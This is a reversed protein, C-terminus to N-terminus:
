GKLALIAQKLQLYLPTVEFVMQSERYDFGFAGRSVMINPPLQIRKFIGLSWSKLIWELDAIFAPGQDLQYHKLLAVIDAPLKKDLYASMVREVALSPFSMLMQILWDHYGWKMPDIQNPKLEATPPLEFLPIHQKIKPILNLPIVSKDHRRNIFEALAVIQMKTLDGLPAIAGITDGYLTAYGLAIELKNGNNLVVANLRQAENMLFSGRVRAQINELLLPSQGQPHSAAIFADVMPQIPTEQFHIALAKAISQANQITTKSNYVTPLSYAYVSQSGIADVLIATSVASDIGGSLGVVWKMKGGLMHHHVHSLTTVLMDYLKNEPRSAFSSKGLDVVNLEAQATENLTHTLAGEKSFVFSGGDYVIFNKGNNEIGTRNVYLWPVGVLRQGQKQRSKEKDLTWPSSSINVVLDCSQQVYTQNIKEDYNEDWVDECVELGIKYTQGRSHFLFPKLFPHGTLTLKTLVDHASLFHRREDFIRYNPQLHKIYLGSLLPHDHERKVWEGQYAFFAANAKAMRGDQHVHNPLLYVNGWIIGIGQSLAKIQDNFSAAFSMWTQDTWQDGLIYGTLCLEPFVILDAKAQKAKGIWDKIREFNRTPQGALVDLQAIAIKM